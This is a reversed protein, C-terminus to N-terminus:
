RFLALVIGATALAAVLLLVAVGAEIGLTALAGTVYEYVRRIAAPRSRSTM